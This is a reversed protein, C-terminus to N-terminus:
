FFKFVVEGILDSVVLKACGLANYFFELQKM